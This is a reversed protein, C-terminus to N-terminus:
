LTGYEVFTGYEVLLEEERTDKGLSRVCKIDLPNLQSLSGPVITQVFEGHVTRGNAEQAMRPARDGAMIRLDDNYRLPNVKQLVILAHCGEGNSNKVDDSIYVANTQLEKVRMSLVEEGYRRYLDEDGYLSTYNLTGSYSGMVMRKRIRKIACRMGAVDHEITSRLVRVRMACCSHM